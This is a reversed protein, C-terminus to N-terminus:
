RVGIRKHTATKDVQQDLSVQKAAERGRNYAGYDIKDAATESKTTM